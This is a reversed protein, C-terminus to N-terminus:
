GTVIKFVTVIKAVGASGFSRRIGIGLLWEGINDTQIDKSGGIQLGPAACIGDGSCRNVITAGAAIESGTVLAARTGIGGDDLTL